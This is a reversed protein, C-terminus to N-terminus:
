FLFRRVTHDESATYITTDNGEVVVTLDVIMDSHCKIRRLCEGSRADWWVATGDVGATVIWPRQPHWQLKTIGADHQCVHRCKNNSLDWIRLQGGLCGTACWNMTTCFGACEVSNVITETETDDRDGTSTVHSM